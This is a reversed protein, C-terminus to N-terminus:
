GSQLPMVSIHGEVIEDGIFENAGIGGGALRQEADQKVKRAPDNSRKLGAASLAQGPGRRGRRRM